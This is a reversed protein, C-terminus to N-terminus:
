QAEWGLWQHGTTAAFVSVAATDIYGTTGCAQTGPMLGVGTTASATGNVRVNLSETAAPPNQICWMKRSANAAIAQQATGGTTITGAKDTTTVTVLGGTSGGSSGGGGGTTKLNGSLDCQIPAIQGDIFTPSSASAQCVTYPDAESDFTCLAVFAVLMAALLRLM